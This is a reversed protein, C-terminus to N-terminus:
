CVRPSAIFALIAPALLPYLEFVTGPARGTFRDMWTEPPWASPLLSAGPILRALAQSVAAPHIDDGGEFILAPLALRELDADAVGALAADDRYYFFGNWRKLTAIFAGPQLALLRERNAPNAAIREAFFPTKAIAPMGGREAAMIYPVHYQFGLFQCAYRGGSASWLILGKAVDPRRLMTLVSVRCGASGGALWAPGEGLHDLLDALDDAWIEQESGEGGFFVDSAGTNRRDWTLVRAKVALAEALATVAAGAERGGPTLAILPGEGRLQYALRCGDRTTFSAM